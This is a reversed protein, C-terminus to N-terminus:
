DKQLLWDICTDVLKVFPSFTNVYTFHGSGLGIVKGRYRNKHAWLIPFTGEEISTQMVLVARMQPLM